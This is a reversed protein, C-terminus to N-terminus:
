RTPRSTCRGPSRRRRPLSRPHIVAAMRAYSAYPNDSILCAVPCDEADSARLIVAAARTAPLQKKFSPGSLFSLSAPRANSLAAVENVVVDPDGILECGFRTALEGLSVPM